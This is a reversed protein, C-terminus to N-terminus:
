KQWLVGTDSLIADLPVDHEEPTFDEQWGNS